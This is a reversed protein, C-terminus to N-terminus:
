KYVASLSSILRLDGLANVTKVKPIPVVRATKWASTPVSQTLISNIHFILLHSIHACTLKVFFIPVGDNAVSKSKIKGLAALLELHSMSSFSFAGYSIDSLYSDTYNPGKLWIAM